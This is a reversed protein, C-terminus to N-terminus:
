LISLSSFNAFTGFAYTVMAIALHLYIITHQAQTRVHALGNTRRMKLRLALFTSVEFSDVRSNSVITVSGSYPFNLSLAIIEYKTNCSEIRLRTIWTSNAALHSSSTDFCVELLTCFSSPTKHVHYVSNSAKLTNVVRESSLDYLHVNRDAGASILKSSTDGIYLLSQVLSTHKINLRESSAAEFDESDLSWLRVEHEYGGSAFKFPTSLATLSSIGRKGLSSRSLSIPKSTQNM